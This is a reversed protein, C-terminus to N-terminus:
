TLLIVILLIVALIAGSIRFGQKHMQEIYKAEDSYYGATWLPWGLNTSDDMMDQVWLASVPIQERRLRATMRAVNDGKGTHSDDGNLAELWPGFTWTEPDSSPRDM